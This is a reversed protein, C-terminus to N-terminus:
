VDTREKLLNYADDSFAKIIFAQNEVGKTFPFELSEISIRHIEAYNLVACTVDVSQTTEFYSRLQNIYKKRTEDDPEIIIGTISLEWDDQSWREKISGRIGSKNVYRRTIINKGSMSIIPDLPLKFEGLGPASLTLPCQWSTNEILSTKFDFKESETVKIVNKFPIFPPMAFGTANQAVLSLSTLDNLEQIPDM